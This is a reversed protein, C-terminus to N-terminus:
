PVVGVQCIILQFSKPGSGTPQEYGEQRHRLPTTTIAQTSIKKKSKKNQKTRERHTTPNLNILTTYLKLIIQGHMM